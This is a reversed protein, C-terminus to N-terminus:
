KMSKDLGFMEYCKNSVEKLCYYHETNFRYSDDTLYYLIEGIKYITEGAFYGIKEFKLEKYYEDFSLAEELTCSWKNLVQLSIYDDDDNNDDLENLIEELAEYLVNEDDIWVLNRVNKNFIEDEGLFEIFGSTDGISGEQYYKGDSKDEAIYINLESIKCFDRDGIFGTSDWVYCISEIDEETWVFEDYGDVKLKLTKYGDIVGYEMEKIIEDFRKESLEEIEVEYFYEIIELARKTIKYKSKNIM